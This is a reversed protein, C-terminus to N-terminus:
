RSNLMQAMLAQRKVRHESMTKMVADIAVKKHEPSANSTAIDRIMREKDVPISGPTRALSANSKARQKDVANAMRRAASMRAEYMDRPDDGFEGADYARAEEDDSGAYENFSVDSSHFSHRGHNYLNVVVFRHDRGFDIIEGTAGEFEIGNGTIIVPDGIHLDQANETLGEAVGQKPEFVTADGTNRNYVGVIEGQSNRAIARNVTGGGHKDNTFEVDSGHENRVQAAWAKVSTGVSGEAVGQEDKDAVRGYGRQKMERDIVKDVFAGASDKRPKSQDKRSAVFNALRQGDMNKFASVAGAPTIMDPAAGVGWGQSARKVSKAAGKIKDGISGEAVGQEDLKKMDKRIAAKAKGYKKIFEADSLTKLDDALEKVRGEQLLAQHLKNMLTDGEAVGQKKNKYQFLNFAQRPTAPMSGIYFNMAPVRDYMKNVVTEPNDLDVTGTMEGMRSNITLEAKTPEIKKFSRINFTGSPNSGLGSHNKVKVRVPQDKYADYWGMDTNSGHWTMDESSEAVGQEGNMRKLLSVAYVLHQGLEKREDSGPKSNRNRQINKALIEAGHAMRALEGNSQKGIIKNLFGRKGSAQKAAVGLASVIKNIQEPTARDGVTTFEDHKTEWESGEAVGQSSARARAEQKTRSFGEAQAQKVQRPYISAAFMKGDKVIYWDTPDLDHREDDGRNFRGGTGRFPRDSEEVKGANHAKWATAFAIGKEKPTLKGDKAYGAKIHKVMREAKDGPPASEEVDQQKRKKAYDTNAPNKKNKAPARTGAIREEESKRRTFYDNAASGEVVTLKPKSFDDIIM